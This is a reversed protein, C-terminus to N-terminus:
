ADIAELRVEQKVNYFSDPPAVVEALQAKCAEM